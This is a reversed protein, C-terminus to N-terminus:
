VAETLASVDDPVDNAAVKKSSGLFSTFGSKKKGKDLPDFAPKRSSTAGRPGPPPDADSSALSSSSSSPAGMKRSPSGGAGAVPGPAGGGITSQDKGLSSVDGMSGEEISLERMYSHPDRKFRGISSTMLSAADDESHGSHPLALRHEPSTRVDHVFGGRNYLDLKTNDKFGIDDELISEYPLTVEENKYKFLQQGPRLGTRYEIQDCMEQVTHASITFDHKRYMIIMRIKKVPPRSNEEAQRVMDNFLGPKKRERRQERMMKRKNWVSNLCCPLMFVYWFWILLPVCLGGGVFILTMSFPQAAFIPTLQLGKIILVAGAVAFLFGFWFSVSKALYFYNEFNLQQLRVSVNHLIFLKEKEFRTLGKEKQGDKAPERIPSTMLEAGTPLVPKKEAASM